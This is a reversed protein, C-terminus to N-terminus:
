MISRHLRRFTLRFGLGRWSRDAQINTSRWDTAVVPYGADPSWALVTEGLVRGVGLGRAGSLVAAYGLGREGAQHPQELRVDRDLLRNQASSAGTSGAV